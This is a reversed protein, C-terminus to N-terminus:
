FFTGSLVHNQTVIDYGLNKLSNSVLLDQIVEINEVECIGIIDPASGTKSYGIESLTQAMNHLKRQYREDTWNDKGEPTRDDDFTLTDNKTDFLNELNYFAITRVQYTQETQGHVSLLSLIFFILLGIKM